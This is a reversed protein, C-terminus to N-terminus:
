QRHCCRWGGAMTVSTEGGTQKRENNQHCTDARGRGRGFLLGEIFPPVQSRGGGFSGINKDFAVIDPKIKIGACVHHFEVRIPAVDPNRCCTVLDVGRQNTPFLIEVSM